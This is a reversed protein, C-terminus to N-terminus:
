QEDADMGATFSQVFVRSILEMAERRTFGAAKLEEYLEHTSIAAQRLPSIDGNM